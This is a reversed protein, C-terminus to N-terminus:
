GVIKRYKKLDCCELANPMPIICGHCQDHILTKVDHVNIPLGEKREERTLANCSKCAIQEAFDHDDDAYRKILDTIIAHIKEPIPPKRWHTIYDAHFRHIILQYLDKREVDITTCETRDVSRLRCHEHECADCKIM